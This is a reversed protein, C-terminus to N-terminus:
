NSFAPQCGQRSGLARCAAVAEAKNAYPGVLLRTLSGFQRYTPQKGRLQHSLRGYLAQPAGAVRFAGLQIQWSDQGTPLPAAAQPDASKALRAGVSLKALAPIGTSGVVSAESRGAVPLEVADVTRTSRALHRPEGAWDNWNNAIRRYNGTPDYLSGGELGLDDAEAKGMANLLQFGTVYADRRASILQVQSNLLEQEANLVEIVTRTGVGREARAGELALEGAAVAV